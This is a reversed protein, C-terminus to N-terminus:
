CRVKFYYAGVRKAWAPRGPLWTDKRADPREAIRMSAMETGAKRKASLHLRRVDAMDPPRPRDLQMSMM